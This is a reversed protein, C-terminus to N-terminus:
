EMPTSNDIESEYVKIPKVPMNVQVAPKLFACSDVTSFIAKIMSNTGLPMVVTFGKVRWQGLSRDACFCVPYNYGVYLMM